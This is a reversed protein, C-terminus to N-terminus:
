DSKFIKALGGWILYGEQVATIYPLLGSFSFAHYKVLYKSLVWDLPQCIEKSGPKYKYPVFYKNPILTYSLSAYTGIGNQLFESTKLKNKQM